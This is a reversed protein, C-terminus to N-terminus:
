AIRDIIRKVDSNKVIVVFNTQFGKMNTAMIRETGGRFGAEKLSVPAKLSAILDNLDRTFSDVTTDFAEALKNMGAAKKEVLMDFTPGLTLACAMGHPLGTDVTIPYSISHCITTGTNSFALGAFISALSIGERDERSNGNDYAAKLHRKVLRVSNLSLERTFPTAKKAWFSEVAHSLIDFGTAATQERPLSTTLSPDIVAKKPYISPHRLGLKNNMQPVTVVSFPTIESSTGPTTPVAYVPYGSDKPVRSNTIYDMVSGGHKALVAMFKAADMVSGGGVALVLDPDHERIFDAGKTITTDMPNPEVGSFVSVDGKIQSRVRDELDMTKASGRGVVLVADGEPVYEGLSDFIGWGYSINTGFIHDGKM